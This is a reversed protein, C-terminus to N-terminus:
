KDILSKNGKGCCGGAHSSGQQRSGSNPTCTPTFFNPCRAPNPMKSINPSVPRPYQRTATSASPRCGSCKKCCHVAPSVAQKAPRIWCRCSLAVPRRRSLTATVAIPQVPDCVLAATPLISTHTDPSRGVCASAGLPRMRQRPVKLAM